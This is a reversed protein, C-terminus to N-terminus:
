HLAPRRRTPPPAPPATNPGFVRLSYRDAIVLKGKAAAMQMPSFSPIGIPTFTLRAPNTLDVLQVMGSSALYAADRDVAVVNVAPTPTFNIEAPNRPDSLSYLRLGSLTQVVLLEPHHDTAPAIESHVPGITASNLIQPDRVNAVDITSLTVANVSAYAVDGGSSVLDFYHGKIGGIQGPDPFNVFDIVHFGSYQNGELITNRAFAANSPPGGFAHFVKAIRPAYPNSVDMLQVDGRGYVVARNGSVRVRDGIGDVLLSAIERPATTTSVDIVRFYPRDIVYALTGDTAVGSVPGALDRFEAVATSGDFVRLPAGTETPLGFQDFVTGSVCLRTGAAAITQVPENFRATLAPTVSRIDYISITDPLEAAYLRGGGAAMRAFNRDGADIRSLLKPPDGSMDYTAIGNVGAAVYLTDGDVAVDRANESVFDPDRSGSADLLYIGTGPFAAILTDGHWALASAPQMSPFFLAIHVLDAQWIGIGAATAAALYRGNSALITAVIDPYGNTPTLSGDVAVSYRDIGVHTAVVLDRDSLLALDLSETATEVAAKRQVTSQSVDYVAVGRGDAAFVRQGDIVFRRSVGRAGWEGTQAFAYIPILAAILSALRRM